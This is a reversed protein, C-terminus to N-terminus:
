FEQPLSRAYKTGHPHHLLGVTLSPTDTGPATAVPDPSVNFIQDTESDSPTSVCVVGKSVRPSSGGIGGIFQHAIVPTGVRADRAPHTVITRKGRVRGMAIKLCGDTSDIM